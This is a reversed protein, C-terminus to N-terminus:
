DGRSLEAALGGFAPLGELQAAALAAQGIVQRAMGDEIGFTAAVLQVLDTFPMCVNGTELIVSIKSTDCECGTADFILTMEPEVADIGGGRPCQQGRLAEIPSQLARYTLTVEVVRDIPVAGDSRDARLLIVDFLSVMLAVEVSEAYVESCSM